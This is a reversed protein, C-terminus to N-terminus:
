IAPSASMMVAYLIAEIEPEAFEPQMRGFGGILAFMSKVMLLEKGSIRTIGNNMIADEYSKAVRKIIKIGQEPDTDKFLKEFDLEGTTVMERYENFSTIKRM